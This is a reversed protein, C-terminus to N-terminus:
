EWEGGALLSRLIGEAAGGGEVVGSLEREAVCSKVRKEDGMGMGGGRGRKSPTGLGGKAFSGNRGEVGEVLGLTELSGVM